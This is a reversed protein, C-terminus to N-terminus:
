EVAAIFESFANKDGRFLINDVKIADDWIHYSKWTGDPAYVFIAHSWGGMGIPIQAKWRKYQFTNLIELAEELGNGSTYVVDDGTTGNRVTIESIQTTDASFITNSRADHQVFPDELQHIAILDYIKWPLILIALVVVLICLGKKHKKM